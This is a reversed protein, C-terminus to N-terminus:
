TQNYVYNFREYRPPFDSASEEFTIFLETLYHFREHQLVKNFCINRVSIYDLSFKRKLFKLTSVIYGAFGCLDFYIGYRNGHEHYSKYYAINELDIGEFCINKGYRQLIDLIPNHANEVGAYHKALKLQELNNVKLLTSL